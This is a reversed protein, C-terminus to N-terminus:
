LTLLRSLNGCWLLGTAARNTSPLTTHVGLRLRQIRWQKRGITACIIQLSDIQESPGASLLIPAGCNCAGPFNLFSLEVNNYCKKHAMQNQSAQDIAMQGKRGMKAGKVVLSAHFIRNTRQIPISQKLDLTEWDVEFARSTATGTVRLYYTMLSIWRTTKYFPDRKGISIRRMSKM